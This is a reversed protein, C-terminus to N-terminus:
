YGRSEMWDALVARCQLCTLEEYLRRTEEPAAEVERGIRRPDTEAADSLRACLGWLRQSSFSSDVEYGAANLPTLEEIAERQVGLERHLIGAAAERVDVGKGLRGGPFDWTLRGVGPRFAPHGLLLRGRWLPVLIVSDPREVRWYDLEAGREDSWREVFVTVWPSTTRSIEALRRWERGSPYHEM